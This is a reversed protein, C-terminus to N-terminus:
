LKQELKARVCHRLSHMFAFLLVKEMENRQLFIPPFLSMGSEDRPFRPHNPPMGCRLTQFPSTDYLIKGTCAEVLDKGTKPYLHIEEELFVVHADSKWIFERLKEFDASVDPPPIVFEIKEGFQAFMRSLDDAFWDIVLIKLKFM